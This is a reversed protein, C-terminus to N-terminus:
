SNERLACLQCQQVVELPFFNSVSLLGILKLAFKCKEYYKSNFNFHNIERDLKNEFKLLAFICEISVEGFASKTVYRPIKGYQRDFAFYMQSVDVTAGDPSSARYHLHQPRSGYHAPVVVIM